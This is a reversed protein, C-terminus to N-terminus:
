GGGTAGVMDSSSTWCGLSLRGPGRALGRSTHFFPPRRSDTSNATLTSSSAEVSMLPPAKLLTATYSVSTNASSVVMISSAASHIM